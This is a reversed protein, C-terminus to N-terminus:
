PQRADSGTGSFIRALCLLGGALAPLLRALGDSSGFLAFLLGSLALYGPQAGPAVPEINADGPFISLAQLAWGAEPDSLPVSGLNLLRVGLALTLVLGWLVNEITLRPSQM